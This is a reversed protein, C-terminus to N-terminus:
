SLLYSLRRCHLLGQNSEQTLFIQQLLSLSGVGTNKPKRTARSTFFRGAICSVQTQDRPQSPRRSFFVAEWELIRAQFIGHVTYDRSNCLTLGSQAVKVKELIRAQSVQYASFGPPSCGMPGCLTLCSQTDSCLACFQNVNTTKIM